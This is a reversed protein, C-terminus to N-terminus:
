RILPAGDHVREKGAEAPVFYIEGDAEEGGVAESGALDQVDAVGAHEDAEVGGDGDPGDALQGGADAVSVEVDLRAGGADFAAIDAQIEEGACGVAGVDQAQDVEGLHLRLLGVFAGVVLVLGDCGLSV